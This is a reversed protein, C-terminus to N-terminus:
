VLKTGEAKGGAVEKGKEDKKKKLEELRKWLEKDQQLGRVAKEADLELEAAAEGMLRNMEAWSVDEGSAPAFDKSM